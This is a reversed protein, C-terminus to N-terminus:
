EIGAEERSMVIDERMQVLNRHYQGNLDILQQRLDGVQEKLM